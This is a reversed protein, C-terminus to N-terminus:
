IKSKRRRVSIIVLIVLALAIIILAAIAYYNLGISATETQAPPTALPTPTVVPRPIVQSAIIQDKYISAFNGTLQTRLAPTLLVMAAWNLGNDSNGLVTMISRESNWPSPFIELSGLPTNKSVRFKLIANPEDPIESGASLPGPMTQGIESILQLKTPRGLILLDREHRIEEPVHDAYVAVLNILNGGTNNGLDFAIQEAINWSFPDNASLVFATRDFTPMFPSPYASLDYKQVKIGMAGLPLHLTSDSRTSFWLETERDAVCHVVPVLVAQLLLLNKGSRFSSAPLNLRWSSVQTTRDNFRLSGVFDGNLIVSVGAQEFDLMAANSFLLDFYAGDTVKQDLPIDFFYAGYRVGPGRQTTTKYGLNDLTLDTISPNNNAELNVDSVIALNTQNDTRIRKSGVAQSAKIVGVDSQGSVVLIVKRDNWPSVVFQLVGDDPAINTNAFVGDKVPAPLPINALDPFSIAQGVFIINTSAMLNNNLQKATIYTIKLQAQTMRGFVAAVTLASQMESASPQDPIVLIATDPIISKQAFPFPLRWLETIPPQNIHKVVFYSSPRITITSNFNNSCPDTTVLRFTFLQPKGNLVDSWATVPLIITDSLEGSKDIQFTNLSIDNLLVELHGTVPNATDTAQNVNSQSGALLVSLNLHLESGDQIEWGAPLSITMDTQDIPGTLIIEKQGLLAFDITDEIQGTVGVQAYAQYTGFPAITLASVLFIALFARKITAKMNKGGSLDSSLLYTESYYL